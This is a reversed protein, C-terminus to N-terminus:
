FLTQQGGKLPISFHSLDHAHKEKNLGLKHCFLKFQHNIIAAMKGEGKMRTGSRSDSLKGGHCDKIHNIIKSASDPFNKTLWDIFIPEIAGNLRVITYGAWYAGAEKARQLVQFMDTDNLGPIIPAFMIGTPINAKACAEIINFRTNITSTRPELVKRLEDAAATISTSIHILDLKQMEQFIDMDRLVLANKTLINVPHKYALCIELLQRTIKLKREVPQYCDTNMSLSLVKPTYNKQEFKKKLLDPANTKAIIKTEFDLGASYGWYEHTNRAYCYICGHECGQYPNASLELPIDESKVENIITKAKTAIIQTPLRESREWEDQLDDDQAYHNQLFKNVPNFQAGRGKIYNDADKM